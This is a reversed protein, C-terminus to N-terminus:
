KKPSEAKLLTSDHPSAPLKAENVLNPEMYTYWGYRAFRPKKVKDSTLVITEGDITAEAPSYEKGNASVEFGRPPKGDTTQLGKGFKYSLVLSNDQPKEDIVVPGSYPTDKGYVTAAAVAAMRTGVELKRPPHVDSNTSGLDITTVSQVGPITAAAFRQVNRFEPWYARLKSKDNIRPLEVMLFPMEKHNFEKRWGKILDALLEYNQRESQIEADSEGQYWVVGAVPFDVWPEIGTEFLYAPKYPHPANLDKGINQRARGRVWDSMYRSELWKATLCDKYNKELVAPPMWAMMESGGLAAHIVAVPTNGLHKQLERGFYYGVASMRQRNQPTNCSWSGTYMEKNKLINQLREDYASPSTHVQPESHYFRFLPTETEQLSNRDGTQNLRWLMNSQGSAVWVEGVLVDKIVLSDKGQTITLDQGEANAQMPPLMARWKGNKVKGEVTTGNFSVTVKGKGDCTGTIPVQKGQQLVMHDAYIKDAKIEAQAMPAVALALAILIRTKM